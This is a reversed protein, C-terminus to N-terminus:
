AVGAGVPQPEAAADWEAGVTCWDAALMDAQSALWGPQWTGDATWMVFYGGVRLGNPGSALHIRTRENVLDAPITTPPMFVVWMGRGNWGERSIKLGARAAEIAHGFNM